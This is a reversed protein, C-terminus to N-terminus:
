EALYSYDVRAGGTPTSSFSITKGVLSWSIPGNNGTIHVKLTGKKPIHKLSITDFATLSESMFRSMESLKPGYNADCISFSYGNTITALQLVRTSAVKSGAAFPSCSLDSQLVGITFGVVKKNVSFSSRVRQVLSFASVNSTLSEDEDTITLIFLDANDRFFGFNASDKKQIALDAAKLPQEVGSGGVGVGVIANRFRTAVGPMDKSLYLESNPGVEILSGAVGELHSYSSRTDTTTIGIRYDADSFYSTFQDFQAGFKAQENYMSGSNDVVVLIDVKAETVSQIKHGTIISAQTVEGVEGQSFEVTDMGCGILTIAFSLGIICNLNIRLKMCGGPYM